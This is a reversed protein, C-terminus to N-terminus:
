LLEVRTVLHDTQVGIYPHEEETFLAGMFYHRAGELDGNITTVWTKGTDCTVRVQIEAPPPATQIGVLEACLAMSDATVSNGEFRAIWRQREYGAWRQQEGKITWENGDADKYYYTYFPDFTKAEVEKGLLKYYVM